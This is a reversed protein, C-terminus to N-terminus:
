CFLGVLPWYPMWLPADFVCTACVCQSKSLCYLCQRGRVTCQCASSCGRGRGSQQIHHRGNCLGARLLTRQSRGRDRDIASLCACCQSAKIEQGRSHCQSTLAGAVATADKLLNDPFQLTAIRYVRSVIYEATADIDWFTKFPEGYMTM